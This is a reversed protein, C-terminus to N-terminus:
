CPAAVQSVQSTAASIRAQCAPCARLHAEIRERRGPSLDNELYSLLQRDNLHRNM